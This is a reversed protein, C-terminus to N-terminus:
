VSSDFNPEDSSSKKLIVKKNCLEIERVDNTAIVVVRDEAQFRKLYDVVKTIGSEDLNTFPEDLFLLLPNQLFALVYKMRQKMGSSFERITKNLAMTLDFYEILEMALSKDFRAGKIKFTIELLELPRFEEFLILYPAVLAQIYRRKSAPLITENVKLYVKGETPTIVNALLKLLTTKGSGNPGLIGFVDNDSIEFTLNRFVYDIGNYTKSVENAFLLIRNM